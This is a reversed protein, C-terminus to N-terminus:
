PNEHMACYGHLKIIRDEEDQAKMNRYTEVAGEVKQQEYKEKM